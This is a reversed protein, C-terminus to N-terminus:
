CILTYVFDKGGNKSVYGGSIEMGANRLRNIHAGLRSIYKQLCWNRSISGTKELKERIIQEQTKIKM